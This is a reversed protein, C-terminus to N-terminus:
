SHHLHFERILADVGTAKNSTHFEEGSPYTVVFRKGDAKIKGLSTKGLVFESVTQGDVKQEKEQIEINKEKSM